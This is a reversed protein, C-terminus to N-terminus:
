DTANEAHNREARRAKRIHAVPNTAVSTASIDIKYDRGVVTPSAGSIKIRTYMDPLLLSMQYISVDENILVFFPYKSFNHRSSIYNRAEHSSKHAL